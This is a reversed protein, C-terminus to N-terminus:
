VLAEIAEEYRVGNRMRSYLVDLTGPNGILIRGTGESPPTGPAVELAALEGGVVRSLIDALLGTTFHCGIRSADHRAEVWDILELVLVGPHGAEHELRGWGLHEFFDSLQGWFVDMGLATPEAGAWQRFRDYFYAGSQLGIRRMVRAADEAGLESRLVSSLAALTAGPMSIVDIGVDVDNM